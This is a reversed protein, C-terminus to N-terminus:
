AHAEGEDHCTCTCPEGAPVLKNQCRAHGSPGGFRCASTLLARDRPEAEGPVHVPPKDKVLRPRVLGTLKRATM